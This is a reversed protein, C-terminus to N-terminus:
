DEQERIVGSTRMTSNANFLESGEPNKYDITLEVKVNSTRGSVSLNTIVFNSVTMKSSTLDQAAGGAESIRLVGGSVDFVIPNTLVDDTALFLVGPHSDFTSSGANLSSASRIEHNIREVVFRANQQVEQQVRAKQATGVVDLAFSVFALVVISVLAMYVITELLTLGKESYITNQQLFSKM